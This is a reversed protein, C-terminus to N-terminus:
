KATTHLTTQLFLCVVCAEEMSTNIMETLRDNYVIKVSSDQSLNLPGLPDNDYVQLIRQSSLYQNIWKFNRRM